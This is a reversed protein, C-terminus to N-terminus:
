TVGDETVREVTIRYPSVMFSLSVDLQNTADGETDTVVRVATLSGGVPGLLALIAGAAILNNDRDADLKPKSM